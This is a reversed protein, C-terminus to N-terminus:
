IATCDLTFNWSSKNPRVVLSRGTESTVDLKSGADWVAQM